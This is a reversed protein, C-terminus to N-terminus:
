NEDIVMNHACLIYDEKIQGPTARIHEVMAKQKAFRELNEAANKKTYQEIIKGNKSTEHDLSYLMHQIMQTSM